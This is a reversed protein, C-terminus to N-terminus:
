TEVDLMLHLRLESGWNVAGHPQTPDMTYDQGEELQSWIGNSFSWCGDNTQLPIHHREGRITADVHAPIQQSPWLSVVRCVWWSSPFFPKLVAEFRGATLVDDTMGSGGPGPQPNLSLALRRLEAVQDPNFRQTTPWYM